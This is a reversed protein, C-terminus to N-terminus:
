ENADENAASLYLWESTATPLPQEKAPSVEEMQNSHRKPPVM